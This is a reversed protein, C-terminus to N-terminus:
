QDEWDDVLALHRAAVSAAPREEVIHTERDFHILEADALKPLELHSLTAAIITWDQQDADDDAIHAALEDLFVPGDTDALYRLVRRRRHSALAEFLLSSSITSRREAIPEEISM